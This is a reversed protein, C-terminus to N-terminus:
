ASTNLLRLGENLINIAANVDRDHTSHCNPCEWTRVSLDKVKTNKYGCNSCLQSSPFTGSIVLIQRGYWAGKYELQRRFESWSADAISKALRPNKQMNQVRLDELCIVQNERILRTSLKHLFDHRANRVKEHLQAVKLRAKERNKGGKKRRSLTRQWRSLLREYKRFTRPNPESRGNSDTVFAKLGVDLGIANKLPEIRQIEVDALVSVFFKGTPTIRVTASLIRGHIERSKAFKVWGLKPLRIHAGEIRITARENDKGNRKSTYSQKPHKKSKFHPYGKKERFFRQYASDLDEISRQLSTSDVENLWEFERKLKPLLLMCAYQNLTTGDKEFAQKRLNLFHNYVFRCCGITRRIQQAQERNPYLRFSFAKHLHDGANRKRKSMDVSQRAPYM